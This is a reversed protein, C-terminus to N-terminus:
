NKQLKMNIKEPDDKRIKIVRQIYTLPTIMERLHKPRRTSKNDELTILNSPNFRRKWLYFTDPSIGFHRCVARANKGHSFYWDMWSLRVRGKSSLFVIKKQFGKPWIYRLKMTVGSYMGKM